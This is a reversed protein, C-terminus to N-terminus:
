FSVSLATLQDTDYISEKTNVNVEVGPKLDSFPAHPYETDKTILATLIKKNGPISGLPISGAAQMKPLDMYNDYEVTFSNGTVTKVTGYFNRQDIRLKTDYPQQPSTVITVGETQQLNQASGLESLMRQQIGLWVFVVAFLGLIFYKNLFFTHEM